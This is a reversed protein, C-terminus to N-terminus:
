QGGSKNKAKRDYYADMSDRLAGALTTGTILTAKEIIRKLRRKIDDPMPRTENIYHSLSVRSIGLQEAIWGKKLGTKKIEANYDM